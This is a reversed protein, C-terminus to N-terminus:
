SLKQTVIESQYQSAIAESSFNKCALLKLLSTIEKGHFHLHGFDAKEYVLMQIARRVPKKNAKSVELGDEM